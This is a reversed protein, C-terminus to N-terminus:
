QEGVSDEGGTNFSRLPWDSYPMFDYDKAAAKIGKLLKAEDAGDGVFGAPSGDLKRIEGDLSLLMWNASIGYSKNDPAVLLGFLYREGQQPLVEWENNGLRLRANERINGDDLLVEEIAIDFYRVEYYPWEDKPEEAYDEATADYPLENM